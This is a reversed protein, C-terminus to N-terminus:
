GGGRGRRENQRDLQKVISELIRAIDAQSDSVQEILEAVSGPFYWIPRGEGDTVKHMDYLDRIMYANNAQEDSRRELAGLIKKLTERNEDVTDKAEKGKGKGVFHLLAQVLGQALVSVVAIVGVLVDVPVMSQADAAM